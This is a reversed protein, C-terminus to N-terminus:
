YLVTGIKYPMTWHVTNGSSHVTNSDNNTSFIYERWYKGHFVFDDDSGYPFKVKVTFSKGFMTVSIDSEYTKEGGGDDEFITLSATNAYPRWDDVLVVNYLNIWTKDSIQSRTVVIYHYQERMYKNEDIENQIQTQSTANDAMISKMRVKFESGGAWVYDFQHECMFKGMYLTYIPNGPAHKVTASAAQDQSKKQPAQFVIGNKEFENNNFDPLDAYRCEAKNIIWVPHSKMYEEDVKITDIGEETQRYAYNWKQSLDEPVFTIVPKTKGDWKDSYPWYIQYEGYQITEETLSHLSRTARLAKRLETALSITHNTSRTVMKPASSFVDAFYYAEDLGHNVATQTADFVETVIEDSLSVASLVDAIARTETSVNSKIDSTNSIPQEPEYQNSCATALLLMAVSFFMIFKKKM